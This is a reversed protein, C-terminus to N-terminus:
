ATFSVTNRPTAARAFHSPGTGTFVAAVVSRDLSANEFGAIVGKVMETTYSNYQKPNNLRIWSVYLGDVVNGKPDTLPRKEYVVCPAETGWHVDTHLAHDKIENDRPMWELAM